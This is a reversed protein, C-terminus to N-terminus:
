EIQKFVVGVCLVCKNLYEGRSRQKQQDMMIVVETVQHHFYIHNSYM